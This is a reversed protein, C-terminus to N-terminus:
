ALTVAGIGDVSYVNISKVEFIAENLAPDVEGAFWGGIALNTILYHPANFPWAKGELRPDHSEIRSYTQGNVSWEVRDPLWLLGYTIFDDSLLSPYETAATVGFEGSYGPGHLTGRITYPQNGTGEFIDIEGCEPWPTDAIATGLMWIAPWSGGGSPAKAIFEFYGYQFSVKGFTHIKGSTWEAPGYYTEHPSEAPERLAHITLGSDVTAPSEMYYERENNGWGPIGHASGDGLDFNWVAPNPRGSDTPEFTESWILERAM